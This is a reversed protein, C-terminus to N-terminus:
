TFDLPLYSFTLPYFLLNIFLTKSSYTTFKSRPQIEDSQKVSWLEAMEIGSFNAPCIIFSKIPRVQFKINKIPQIYFNHNKAYKLNTQLEDLLSKKANM